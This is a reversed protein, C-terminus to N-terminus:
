PGAALADYGTVAVHLALCAQVDDLDVELLQELQELRHYLAPRSLHLLAAASSKNRGASLYARLTRLLDEAARAPARLLPGLQREVFTQLRADDRLLVMLGHLGVDALTLYDGAAGSGASAARAVQAAEQLSSAAQALTAAAPGVGVTVPPHGGAALDRHVARAVRTLVPEPRTGPPLVLLVGVGPDFPAVLAQQGSQEVAAAVCAVESADRDPGAGPAPSGARALVMGVLSRGQTSIGLAAARVHLDEDSQRGLVLERLVGAHAQRELSPEERALLRDLVLASAARELVVAQRRTPDGDAQLVLRGWAQGRAAVSAVLWGEPTSLGTPGDVVVRRSRREWEGLVVQRDRGATAAALVRHALDELVVPAGSWRAAEELIEDVGAGEVGLRTFVQHLHESAQLEGYQAHLIAAHVAETIAVFRVPTRFAVLPLRHQEAARVLVAPLVQWKVGLEVCLAAAGSGALARVYERLEDRGDPLAVGTSLVLEGGQLLGAVDQLELVHVWRVPATLSGAGVLVQPHGRMVQPLRLVEDISPLM